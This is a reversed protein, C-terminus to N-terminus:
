ADVVEVVGDADGDDAVAARHEGADHCNYLEILARLCRLRASVPAVVTRGASGVCDAGTAPLAERHSRGIILEAARHFRGSVGVAIGHLAHAARHRDELGMRGTIAIWRVFAGVLLFLILFHFVFSIASAVTVIMPPVGSATRAAQPSRLLFPATSTASARVSAATTAPVFVVAHAAAFGSQSTRLSPTTSM